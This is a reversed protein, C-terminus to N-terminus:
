LSICSVNVFPNHCYFDILVHILSISCLGEAYSVIQIINNVVNALNMHM